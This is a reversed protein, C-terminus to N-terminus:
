QRRRLVFFLGYAISLTIAGFFPYRWTLAAIGVVAIIKVVLMTNRDAEAGAGTIPALDDYIGDYVRSIIVDALTNLLPM